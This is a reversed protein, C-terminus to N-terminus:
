FSLHVRSKSSVTKLKLILDRLKNKYKGPQPLSFSQIRFCLILVLQPEKCVRCSPPTYKNRCQLIKIMVDNMVRNGKDKRGKSICAKKFLFITM